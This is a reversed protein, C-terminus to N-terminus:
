EILNKTAIVATVDYLNRSRQIFPMTKSDSAPMLMKCVLLIGM